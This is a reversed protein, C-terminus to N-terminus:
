SRTLYYTHTDYSFCGLDTVNDPLGAESILAKILDGPDDNDNYFSDDTMLILSESEGFMEKLVATNDFRILTMSKYCSIESVASYISMTMREPQLIYVCDTEKYPQLTKLHERTGPYLNDFQGYKYSGATCFSLVILLIAASLFSPIKPHDLPLRILLGGLCVAVPYIGYLYRTLTYPATVSVFATFLLVPILLLLLRDREPRSRHTLFFVILAASSVLLILAIPGGFLQHIATPVTWRLFNRLGPMHILNTRVEVGRNSKLLHKIMPPFLACATLGGAPIVIFHLRIVQREKKAILEILYVLSIVATWIIFYYHTLVGGVVTFFLALCYRIDKPSRPGWVFLCTIASIWFALMMYMRLFTACSLIGPSLALMVLILVRCVLSDTFRRLLKNLVPIMLISFLINISAAFWISFVGPFFSCVTCLLYYFLPPHVDKAQNLYVTMYDFPAQASFRDNFYSAPDEIKLDEPFRFSVTSDTLALDYSLYEDNYLAEKRHLTFLIMIVFLVCVATLSLFEYIRSHAETNKDPPTRKVAAM